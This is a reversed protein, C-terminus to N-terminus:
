RSMEQLPWQEDTGLSEISLRRSAPETSAVGEDDEEEREELAIERAAIRARELPVVRRYASFHRIGLVSCRELRLAAAHLAELDVQYIASALGPDLQPHPWRPTKPPSDDNETRFCRLTGM